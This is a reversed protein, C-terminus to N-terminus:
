EIRAYQLGAAGLNGQLCGLVIKSDVANNNVGAKKATASTTLTDNFTAAADVNVKHVGSVAVVAPRDTNANPFMIVAPRLDDKTTTTGVFANATGSYKVVDGLVLGTSSCNMIIGYGRDTEVKGALRSDVTTLYANSPVDILWPTPTNTLNPYARLKPNKITMYTNASNSNILIMSNRFGKADVNDIVLDKVYEVKIANDTNELGGLHINELKINEMPFSSSGKLYIHTQTEGGYTAEDAAIISESYINPGIVLENVYSDVRIASEVFDSLAMDHIHFTEADATSEPDPNLLICNNWCAAFDCNHIDSGSMSNVASTGTVKIGNNLIKGVINNIDSFETSDIDILNDFNRGWVNTLEFTGLVGDVYIGDRGTTRTTAGAANWAINEGLLSFNGMRWRHFSSSGSKVVKIAPGAGTWKIMSTVGSGWFNVYKTKSETILLGETGTSGFDFITNPALIINGGYIDVGTGNDLPVNDIAWQAITRPNTGTQVIPGGPSAGSRVKYNSGDKFVYFTFPKEVDPGPAGAPGINSLLDPCM